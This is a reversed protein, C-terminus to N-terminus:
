FLVRITITFLPLAMNHDHNVFFSFFLLEIKPLSFLVVMRKSESPKKIFFVERNTGGSHDKELVTGAM